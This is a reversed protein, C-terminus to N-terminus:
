IGALRWNTGDFIMIVMGDVVIDSAATANGERDLLTDSVGDVSVTSAGDGATDSKWTVVQGITPATVVLNPTADLVYTNQNTSASVGAYNFAGRNQVSGVVNVIGNTINDITEGEQLRIDATTIGAQSMDIGYVMKSAASIMELGVDMTAPSNSSHSNLLIGADMDSSSEINLGYDVTTGAHSIMKIFNTEVDVDATATDGWMGFFV